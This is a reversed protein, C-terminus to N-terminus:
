EVYCGDNEYGSGSTCSTGAKSLGIKKCYGSNTGDFCKKQGNIIALSVNDESTPTAVGTHLFRADLYYRFNKGEFFNAASNAGNNDPFSIILDEFHYAPHTNGTTKGDELLKIEIARQIDGLTSWAEAARAKEVAKQYQPLAVSALIGIILVVVILEILTFGRKYSNKNKM